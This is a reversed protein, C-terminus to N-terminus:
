KAAGPPYSAFMKQVAETINKEKKEPSADPELTKSATGRWVLQKRSADVLDIILTGVPIESVTSTTMGMGGGWGWGWGYGWGTNYTNVQMQKSLRTHPVVWLDPSSGEAVKRLGKSALTAEVAVQLRQALLQNPIPETEKWAYTKFKSFDIARDYDQSTELTSCSTLIGIGLLVVTLKRCFRTTM